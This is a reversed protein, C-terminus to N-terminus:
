MILDTKDGDILDLSWGAALFGCQFYLEARQLLAENGGEKRLCELMEYFVDATKAIRECLAERRARKESAKEICYNKIGAKKSPWDFQFDYFKPKRM